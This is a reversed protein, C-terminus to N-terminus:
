QKKREEAQQDGLYHCCSVPLGPSQAKRVPKRIFCFWLAGISLISLLTAPLGFGYFIIVICAMALLGSTLLLQILM